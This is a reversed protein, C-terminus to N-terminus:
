RKSDQLSLATAAESRYRRQVDLEVVRNWWRRAESSRGQRECLRAWLVNVEVHEEDLSVASELSNLAADIDGQDLAARTASLLSEIGRACDTLRRCQLWLLGQSAFWTLVCISVALWPTWSPIADPAILLGALAVNGCIGFVLALVVGLWERRRVILGAGPLVLNLLWVFVDIGSKM